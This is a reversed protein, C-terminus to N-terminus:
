ADSRGVIEDFIEDISKESGIEADDAAKSMYGIAKASGTMAFCLHEVSLGTIKSMDEVLVTLAVLLEETSGELNVQLGDGMRTAKILTKEM